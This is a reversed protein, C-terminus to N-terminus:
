NGRQGQKYMNSRAAGGTYRTGHGRVSKRKAEGEGEGEGELSGKSDNEENSKSKKGRTTHFAYVM